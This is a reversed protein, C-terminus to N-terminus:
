THKFKADKIQLVLCFVCNNSMQPGLSVCIPLLSGSAEENKAALEAELRDKVDALERQLQKRIQGLEQIQRRSDEVEAQANRQQVVQLM